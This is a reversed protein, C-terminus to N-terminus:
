IISMLVDHIQKLKQKHTIKMGSSDKVYFVDIVRNGYTSIHASSIQLQLDTFTSTVDYLFGV